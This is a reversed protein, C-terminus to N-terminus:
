SLVDIHDMEYLYLDEYGNILSDKLNNVDYTKIKFKNFLVVALAVLLISVVIALIGIIARKSLKRKVM